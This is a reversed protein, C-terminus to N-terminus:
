QLIFTPPMWHLIKNFFPHWETHAEFIHDKKVHVGLFLPWLTCFHLKSNSVFTSFPTMPHPSLFFPTIPHLIPMFFPPRYCASSIRPVSVHSHEERFRKKKRRKKKKPPALPTPLTGQPCKYKLSSIIRTFPSGFCERFVYKEPTFISGLYANKKIQGDHGNWFKDIYGFDCRKKGNQVNKCGKIIYALVNGTYLGSFCGYNRSKKKKILIIDLKLYM